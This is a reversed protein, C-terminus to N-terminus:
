KVWTAMSVRSTKALMPAREMSSIMPRVSSRSGISDSLGRM